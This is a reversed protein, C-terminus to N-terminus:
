SLPEIGRGKQAQMQAFLASTLTQPDIVGALIASGRGQRETREMLTVNALAHVFHETGVEVTVDRDPILAWDRATERAEAMTWVADRTFSATLNPDLHRRGGSTFVAVVESVYDAGPNSGAAATKDLVAIVQDLVAPTVGLETLIRTGPSLPVAEVLGVLIDEASIASRGRSEARAVAADVAGTLEPSYSM